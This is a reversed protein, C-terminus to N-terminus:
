WDVTRIEDQFEKVTNTQIANIISNTFAEASLFKVKADPKAALIVNGIAHLLHTKGLGASGYVFFPNYINGPNNAVAQAAVTAFKNFDGTVYTEFRQKVNLGSEYATKKTKREEM